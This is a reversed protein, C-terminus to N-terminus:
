DRDFIRYVLLIVGIVVLNLVLVPIVYELFGVNVVYVISIVLISLVVFYRLINRVLPSLKFGFSPKRREGPGGSGDGPEEEGYPVNENDMSILQKRM